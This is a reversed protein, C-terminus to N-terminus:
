VRNRCRRGPVTCCRRCRATIAGSSPRAAQSRSSWYPNRDTGLAPLPSRQRSPGGSWRCSCPGVHLPRRRHYRDTSRSPPYAPKTRASPSRRNLLPDSPCLPPEPTERSIARALRSSSRATTFHNPQSYLWNVAPRNSQFTVLSLTSRM